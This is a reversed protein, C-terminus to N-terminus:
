ALPIYILYLFQLIAYAVLIAVTAIGMIDRPVRDVLRELFPYIVWTILTSAVGFLLANQLCVQGMFNFPMTSYDWLAHDANQALGFCLEIASCFCGNVVFSLALPLAPIHVHEQFWCKIPYLFMACVVFGVGEPPFPYLWDRWLSTNDWGPDGAFWGLAIGMCFAAEMWHGVVSFICYYIVMNRWYALQKPSPRVPDAVSEASVDNVLVEQVRKSRWLYLVLIIDFLSAFFQDMLDFRGMAINISAGIVINFLSFGIIFPRAVKLRKAMMWLSVGDFILNLLDLVNAPTYYFDNRSILGLAAITFIVNLTFIVMVFRMFGLHEHRRKGKGEDAPVAASDAMHHATVIETAM